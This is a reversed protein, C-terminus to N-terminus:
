APNGEGTGLVQQARAYDEPIGIDIFDRTRTYAAVAGREVTPRLIETEFSFAQDAPRGALLACEIRYVGANIYGQGGRGKEIFGTVRVGDITVAGYRTTDAVGALAMGLPLGTQRTCADFDAYDLQLYTDGNLVFCAAGRIHQMALVIAGGTGLPQPERSHILQMGQWHGGFAAAVQEGRYGTALVVRAFGQAALTDLLYALFPRGRVPALPKPVESVVSRLRTGLGGALVIAEDPAAV